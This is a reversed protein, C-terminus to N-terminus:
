VGRSFLEFDYNNSAAPMQSVDSVVPADAYVDRLMQAYSSEALSANMQTPEVQFDACLDIGLIYILGRKHQDLVYLIETPSTAEKWAIQLGDAQLRWMLLNLIELGKNIDTQQLEQQSDRIGMRYFSQKILDGVTKM